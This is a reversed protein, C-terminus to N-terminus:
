YGKQFLTVLDFVWEQASKGCGVVVVMDEDEGPKDDKGSPPIEELIQELHQAFKSTHFVLGRYGTKQATEPSLETPIKPNSCGKFGCSKRLRSIPLLM